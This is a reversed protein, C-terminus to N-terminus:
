SRKRIDGNLVLSSETSPLISKAELALKKKKRPRKPLEFGEIRELLQPFHPDSNFRVRHGNGKHLEFSLMAGAFAYFKGKYERTEEDFINFSIRDNGKLMPKKAYPRVVLIQGAADFREASGGKVMSRTVAGPKYGKDIDSGGRLAAAKAARDVKKGVDTKKGKQWEFDLRIAVKALKVRLKLLRDWLDSNFKWEGRANRWGNRKWHPARTVNQTIYQSDTVIVIRAVGNWPQNESVWRLAEICAMLEMRNISSENCGFDVIQEDSLNLHDPFHVIAACGSDGGPNQYCSGDTYIHIARPDIV